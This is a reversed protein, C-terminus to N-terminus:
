EEEVYCMGCDIGDCWNCALITEGCGKCVFVRKGNTQLKTESLRVKNVYDCQPCIEEFDYSEETLDKEFMLEKYETETMGVSQCVMEIFAEDDLGNYETLSEDFITLIANYLKVKLNEVKADEWNPINLM